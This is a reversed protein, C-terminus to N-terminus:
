GGAGACDNTLLRIRDARHDTRLRQVAKAQVASGMPGAGRCANRFLLTTRPKRLEEHPWVHMRGAYGAHYDAALRLSRSRKTIAAYLPRDACRSLEALDTLAQLSFGTYHFPRTRELELPMRGRKDIQGDLRARVTGRLVMPLVTPDGAFTAFQALQTDYYLGHNNRAAREQQGNESKVMWLAYDAFWRRLAAMAAADLAGARELLLSSEVVPVLRYTDIIGIGRGDTRGPISQAFDLNPNMRTDADLFWHRILQAARASHDARDAFYGSLALAEVARAMDSMSRSDFADTNREPNTQGDRRIYPLGGARKPDPWWYPGISYYDHKSGSPPTKTKDTVSWPGQAVVNEADRLLADLAPQLDTDGQALAAKADAMRAQNWILSGPASCTAAPSDASAPAAGPGPLIALGVAGAFACLRAGLATASFTRVRRKPM